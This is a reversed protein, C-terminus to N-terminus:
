EPMLRRTEAGNVDTEQVWELGEERLTLHLRTVVDAGGGSNRIEDTNVSVAFDPAITPMVVAVDGALRSLRQIATAVLESSVVEDEFWKRARQPDFSESKGEEVVRNRVYCFAAEQLFERCYNQVTQSAAERIDVDAPASVAVEAGVGLRELAIRIREALVQEATELRQASMDISEFLRQFRQFYRQDESDELHHLQLRGELHRHAETIIEELRARVKEAITAHHEARAPQGAIIDSLIVPLSISVKQLRLRPVPLGQLFPNDRYHYAIRLAERDAVARAQAMSAVLGGLVDSLKPPNTNEGM